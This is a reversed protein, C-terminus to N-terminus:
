RAVGGVASVEVVDDLHQGGAAHALRVVEDAHVPLRAGADDGETRDDATTVRASPVSCSTRAVLLLTQVSRSSGSCGSRTTSRTRSSDSREWGAGGSARPAPRRTLPVPACTPPRGRRPARRRRSRRGPDGARGRRTPPAARQVRCRRGLCQRGDTVRRWGPADRGEPSRDPRGVCGVDRALTAVTRATRAPEGHPRLQARWSAAALRGVRRGRRVRLVRARLGRESGAAGATGATPAGARRAHVETVGGAGTRAVAVLAAGGVGLGRGTGGALGGDPRRRGRGGGAGGSRLWHSVVQGDDNRPVDVRGPGRARDELGVRRRGGAGAGAGDVSRGARGAPGVVGTHRVVHRRARRPRRVVAAAAWSRSGRRACSSRRRAGCPARGASGARRRPRRIRRPRATERHGGDGVQGVHRDRVGCGGGLDRRSGDRGRGLHGPTASSDSPPRMEDTGHALGAGFAGCGAGSGSTGVKEPRCVGGGAGLRSGGVIM